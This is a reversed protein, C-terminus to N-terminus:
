LGRRAMSATCWARTSSFTPSPLSPQNPGQIALLAAKPAARLPLIPCVTPPPVVEATAAQAQGLPSVPSQSHNGWPVARYGESGWLAAPGTSTATDPSPQLREEKKEVRGYAAPVWRSRASCLISFTLSHPNPSPCSPGPKRNEDPSKELPIDVRPLTRSLWNTSSTWAEEKGQTM